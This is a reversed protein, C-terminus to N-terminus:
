AVDPDDLAAIVMEATIVGQSRGRLCVAVFTLLQAPLGRAQKFLASLADPSFRAAVDKGMAHTLFPAVEDRVLGTLTVRPSIRRWFASFSPTALREKFQPQASLVVSFLPAGEIDAEALLRIEALPDDRMLQAEDLLFVLRTPIEHLKEVIHRHAQPDSLNWPLRFVDILVSLLGRRSLRGSSLYLVQFNRRDLAAALARLLTTKGTGSEGLLLAYGQRDTMAAKLRKLAEQFDRYPCVDPPPVVHKKM